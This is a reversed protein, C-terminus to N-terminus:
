RLAGRQALLGAAFAAIETAVTLDAYELAARDFDDFSMRHVDPGYYFACERGDAGERPGVLLIPVVPADTEGPGAGRRIQNLGVAIGLEAHTGRGGPLWVIVLDATAVGEIEHRAVEAIREPGEHQVSGHKTWDYSLGIGHEALADRLARVEDARELASAIYVQPRRRRPPQLARPTPM